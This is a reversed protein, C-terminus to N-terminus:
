HASRALRQRGLAVEGVAPERERHREGDRQALRQQELTLGADALGLDGARQRRRGVRPKDPQLAVLADVQVVGDIVPVIGTLQQRQAGGLAADVLALQKCPPKQQAPRQQLRQLGIGAVGDHSANRSSNRDSKATVIGSSPVIV